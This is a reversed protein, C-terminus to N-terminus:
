SKTTLRLENHTIRWKVYGRGRNWSLLVCGNENKLELDEDTYGIKEISIEKITKERRGGKLSEYESLIIEKHQKFLIDAYRQFVLGLIPQGFKNAALHAGQRLLDASHWLNDKM